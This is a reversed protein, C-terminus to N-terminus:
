DYKCDLRLKGINNIIYKDPEGYSEKISPFRLQIKITYKKEITYPNISIGGHNVVVDMPLCYYGKLMLRGASDTHMQSSISPAGAGGLTEATDIEEYAAPSGDPTLVLVEAEVFTRRPPPFGSIASDEPFMLCILFIGLDRWTAKRNMRLRATQEITDRSASTLAQGRVRDPALLSTGGSVM